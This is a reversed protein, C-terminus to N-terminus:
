LPRDAERRHSHERIVGSRLAHPLQLSRASAVTTHIETAVAEIFSGSGFPSCEGPMGAAAQRVTSGSIMIGWRHIVAKM